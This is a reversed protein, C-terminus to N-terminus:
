FKLFMNAYAETLPEMHLRTHPTVIRGTIVHPRIAPLFAM